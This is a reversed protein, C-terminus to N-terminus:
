SAGRRREDLQHALWAREEPTIDDGWRRDPLPAQGTVMRYRLADIFRTVGPFIADKGGPTAEINERISSAERMARWVLLATMAPTYSRFLDGVWLDLGDGMLSITGDIVIGFFLIVALITGKEAIGDDLRRRDYQETGGMRQSLRARRTGTWLDLGGGAITALLFFAVHLNWHALILGGLGVLVGTAPDPPVVAFHRLAAAMPTIRHPAM